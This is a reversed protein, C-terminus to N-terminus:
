GEPENEIVRIPPFLTKRAAYERIVEPADPWTLTGGPLGAEGHEIEDIPVRRATVKDYGEIVEVDIEKDGRLKAAELRRSGDYVQYKKPPQLM